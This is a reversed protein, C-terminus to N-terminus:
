PQPTYQKANNAIQQAYDWVTGNSTSESGRNFVRLRRKWLRQWRRETAAEGGGGVSRM